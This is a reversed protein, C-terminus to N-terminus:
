LLNKSNARKDCEGRNNSLSLLYISLLPCFNIIKLHGKLKIKRGSATQGSTWTGATNANRLPLRIIQSVKIKIDADAEKSIVTDM